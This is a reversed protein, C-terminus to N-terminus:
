LEDKETGQAASRFVSNVHVEFFAPLISNPAESSKILISEFSKSILYFVLVLLPM